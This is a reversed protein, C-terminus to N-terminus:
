SLAEGPRTRDGGGGGYEVAELSEVAPSGSFCGGITAVCVVTVVVLVVVVVVWKKGSHLRLSGVATSSWRVKPPPLRPRLRTLRGEM